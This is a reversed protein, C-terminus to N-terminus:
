RLHNNHRNFSTMRPCCEACHTSFLIRYPNMDRPSTEEKAGGGAFQRYSDKDQRGGAELKKRQVNKNQGKNDEKLGSCVYLTCLVCIFNM